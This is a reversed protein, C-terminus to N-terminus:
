VLVKARGSADCISRLVSVVSIKGSIASIRGTASSTLRRRSRRAASGSELTITSCRSCATSAPASGGAPASPKPVWPLKAPDRITGIPLSGGKGALFAAIQYTEGYALSPLLPFSAQGQQDATPDDFIYFPMSANPTLAAASTESFAQATFPLGDYDLFLRRQGDVAVPQLPLLTPPQDVLKYDPPQSETNLGFLELMALNAYAWNGTDARRVLVCVGGYTDAFNDLESTDSDVAIQVPLTGPAHDPVFYPAPKTRPESHRPYSHKGLHRPGRRGLRVLNSWLRRPERAEEHQLGIDGCRDENHRSTTSLRSAPL